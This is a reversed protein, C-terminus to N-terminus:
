RGTKLEEVPLDLIPRRVTWIGVVISALLGYGAFALATLYAWGSMHPSAFRILDVGVALGQFGVAAVPWRRSPRWVLGLLAVFATMDIAALGFLPDKVGAVAQLALSAVWGLATVAIAYRESPGGRVLAFLGVSLLAFIGALGYITNLM